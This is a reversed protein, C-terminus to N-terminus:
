WGKWNLADDGSIEGLAILLLSQDRECTIMSFHTSFGDSIVSHTVKM